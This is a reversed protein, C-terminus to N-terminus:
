QITKKGKRWEDPPLIVPVKRLLDTELCGLAAALAELAALSFNIERNEINVIDQESLGSLQALEAVSLGRADRISRLNISLRRRIESEMLDDRSRTIIWATM